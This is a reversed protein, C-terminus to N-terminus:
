KFTKYKFTKKQNPIYKIDLIDKSFFNYLSLKNYADPVLESLKNLDKVKNIRYLLRYPDEGRKKDVIDEFLKKWLFIPYGKKIKEESSKYGAKDNDFFYQLNLNNSELFKFDTNTGVVGISNPYFLSDLYGEFITVKDEFNVNLINFYYSLKNYMVLENIDIDVDDVNNVWKYLTEYNFIKFMRSKGEKLNRIQIGLVHSKRRNLLCVIDDYREENYWYKGQYIDNHSKEGIGRKILYKYANGNKLIPGFDTIAYNGSNFILEIDSIKILKDLNTEIISDEYDKYSINSNLYEIIELKKTPDIQQNFRRCLKDFNMKEGCNFCVFILRNFWLNGRKKRDDKSDGCLPCCFNIRDHYDHIRRREVSKFEFNLINQITSKIYVKDM